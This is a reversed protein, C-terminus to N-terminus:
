GRWGSFIYQQESSWSLIISLAKGYRWWVDKLVCCLYGLKDKEVCEESCLILEYDQEVVAM